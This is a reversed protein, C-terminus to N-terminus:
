FLLECASKSRVQLIYKKTSKLWGIELAIWNEAMKGCWLHRIWFWGPKLDGVRGSQASGRCWWPTAQWRLMRKKRRKPTLLPTPAMTPCQRLTIWWLDRCRVPSISVVQDASTTKKGVDRSYTFFCIFVGHLSLTPTQTVVCHTTQCARTKYTKVLSFLVQPFFVKSMSVLKSQVRQCRLGRM